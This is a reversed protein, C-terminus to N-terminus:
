SINEADYRMEYESRYGCNKRVMICGTPIVATAGAPRRVTHIGIMNFCFM